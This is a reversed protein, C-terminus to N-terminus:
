REQGTRAKKADEYHIRAGMAVIGAGLGCLLGSRFSMRKGPLVPPLPKDPLGWPFLSQVYKM